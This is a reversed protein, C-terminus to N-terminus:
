GACHAGYLAIIDNPLHCYVHKYLIWGGLTSYPDSAMTVAPGLAANHGPNTVLNGTRAHRPVCGRADGVGEIELLKLRVVCSLLRAIQLSEYVLRWM